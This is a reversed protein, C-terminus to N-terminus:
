YLIHAVVFLDTANVLSNSSSQGHSRRERCVGGGSNTHCKQCRSSGSRRLNRRVMGRCEDAAGVTNPGHPASLVSRHSRLWWCLFLVLGSCYGLRQFSRRGLLLDSKFDLQRFYRKIRETVKLGFHTLPCLGFLPPRDRVWLEQSGFGRRPWSRPSNRYM